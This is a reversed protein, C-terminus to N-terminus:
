KPASNTVPPIIPTIGEAERLLTQRLTYRKAADVAFEAYQNLKNPKDPNSGALGIYTSTNHLEAEMEAELRQIAPERDGKKWADFSSQANKLRLEVTEKYSQLVPHTKIDEALEILESEERRITLRLYDEVTLGYGPPIESPSKYLAYTESERWDFGKGALETYIGWMGQQELKVRISELFKEKEDSKHDGTSQFESM